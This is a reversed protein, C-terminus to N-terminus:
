FGTQSCAGPLPIVRLGLDRPDPTSATLDPRNGAGASWARRHRGPPIASYDAMGAPVLCHGAPSGALLPHFPHVVAFVQGYSLWEKELKRLECGAPEGM